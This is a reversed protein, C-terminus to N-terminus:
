LNEGGTSLFIKGLIPTCKAKSFACFNIFCVTGSINCIYYLVCKNHSHYTEYVKIM